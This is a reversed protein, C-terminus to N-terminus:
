NIKENIYEKKSKFKIFFDKSNYKEIKGKKENKSERKIVNYLIEERLNEHCFAKFAEEFYFNLKINNNDSIKYIEKLKKGKYEIYKYKLEKKGLKKVRKNKEDNIWNPLINQIFNRIIKQRCNQGRKSNKKIINGSKEFNINFIKYTTEKTSNEQFNKINKVKVNKVKKNSKSKSKKKEKILKIKSDSLFENSININDEVNIKNENISINLSSEKGLNINENNIKNENENMSINLSEKVLKINENNIKNENISINLNSEKESNVNGNNNLPLVPKFYENNDQNIFVNSMLNFSENSNYSSPAPSLDNNTYQNSGNETFINCNININGMIKINILGIQIINNYLM